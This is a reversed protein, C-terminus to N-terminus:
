GASTKGPQLRGLRILRSNIAGRTRGHAQTLEVLTKGADFASALQHDEVEGWPKGANAAAARPRDRRGVREDLAKAAIFLARVVRATNLPSDAPLVEGTEPDVGGALTEIVQQAEKSTM